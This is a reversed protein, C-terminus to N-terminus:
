TVLQRRLARPAPRTTRLRNLAQRAVIRALYGRPDNIASLDVEIWRLYSDQLVDETDVVTGLIEYAITFLLPRYESFVSAHSV